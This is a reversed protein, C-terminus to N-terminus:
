PPSAPSTSTSASPKSSKTTWRHTSEFHAAFADVLDENLADLEWNRLAALLMAIEPHSLEVQM